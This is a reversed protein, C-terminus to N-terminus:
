RGRFSFMLPTMGMMKAWAMMNMGMVTAPKRPPLEPNMADKPSMLLKQYLKTNKMRM